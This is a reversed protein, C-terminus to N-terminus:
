FLLCLWSYLEFYLIYSYCWNYYLSLHTLLTYTFFIPFPVLDSWNKCTHSLLSPDSFSASDASPSPPPVHFIISALIALTGTVDIFCPLIYILFDSSWVSSHLIHFVILLTKHLPSSPLRGPTPKFPNLLSCFLPVYSFPSVCGPVESGHAEVLFFSSTLFLMWRFLRIIM